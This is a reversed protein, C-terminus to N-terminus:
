FGAEECSTSMGYLDAKTLESALAPRAHIARARLEACIAKASLDVGRKADFVCICEHHRPLEVRRMNERKLGYLIQGCVRKAVLSLATEFTECLISRGSGAGALVAIAGDLPGVLLRPNVLHALKGDRDLFICHLASTQGSANRRARVVLAPMTGVRSAWHDLCPHYRFSSLDLAALDLDPAVRELYRTAPTERALDLKEARALIDKIRFRMRLEKPLDSM